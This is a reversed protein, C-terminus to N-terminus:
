AAELVERAGVSERLVQGTAHHRGDRLANRRRMELPDIGLASPSGSWRYSPRSSTQPAGFGRFAGNPPTNTAVVRRSACTACGYPGAAHPRRALARGALADRLRRRGDRNSRPAVLTGDRTVGTRHRVVRSPAQHDGRHGRPPRLRDEGAPGAKWALLAAHGAIMSPYEEKGGFGGGTATQIVRMQEDALGFLAKLAKHVYYPCQLSGLVM